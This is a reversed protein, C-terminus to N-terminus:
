ERWNKLRAILPKPTRGFIQVNEYQDIMRLMQSATKSLKRREARTLREVAEALKAADGAMVLKELDEPTM